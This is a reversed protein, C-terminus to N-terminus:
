GAKCAYKFFFLSQNYYFYLIFPLKNKKKNVSFANERSPFADALKKQEKKEERPHKPPQTLM